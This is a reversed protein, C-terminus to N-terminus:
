EITTDTFVCEANLNEAGCSSIDARALGEDLKKRKQIEELGSLFPFMASVQSSRSFARNRWKVPCNSCPVTRLSSSLLTNKRKQAPNTNVYQIYSHLAPSERSNHLKRPKSHLTLNSIQLIIARTLAEILQQSIHCFMHSGYCLRHLATVCQSSNILIRGHWILVAYSSCAATVSTLTSYVYSAPFPKPCWPDFPGVLWIGRNTNTGRYRIHTEYGQLDRTGEGGQESHVHFKIM